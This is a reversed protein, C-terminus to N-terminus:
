PFPLGVVCRRNKFFFASGLAPFRALSCFSTFQKVIFTIKGQSITNKRLCQVGSLSAYVGYLFSCFLTFYDAGDHPFSYKNTTNIAGLQYRCDARILILTVDGLLSGKESRVAERLSSM